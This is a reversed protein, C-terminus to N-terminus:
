RERKRPLDVRSARRPPPFREALKPMRQQTPVGVGARGRLRSFSCASNSETCNVFHCRPTGRTLFVHVGGALVFIGWREARSPKARTENPMTSVGPGFM